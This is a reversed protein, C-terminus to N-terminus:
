RWSAYPCRACAGAVAVHALLSHWFSSYVTEFVHRYGCIEYTNQTTTRAKSRNAAASKPVRDQRPEATSATVADVKGEEAGRRRGHITPCAHPQMWRGRGHLKGQQERTTAQTHSSEPTVAHCAAQGGSKQGCRHIHCRLMLMVLFLTLLEMDEPRASMGAAHPVRPQSTARASM